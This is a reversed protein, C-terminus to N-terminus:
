YDIRQTKVECWEYDNQSYVFLGGNKNCSEVKESFTKNQVPFAYRGLVLGALFILTLLIIALINKM